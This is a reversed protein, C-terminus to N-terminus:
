MGRCRVYSQRKVPTVPADEMVLRDPSPLSIRPRASFREGEGECSVQMRWANPGNQVVKGRPKCRTEYWYLGNPNIEMRNVGDPDRCDKATSGWLGEYPQKASAGTTALASGVVVLVALQVGTM